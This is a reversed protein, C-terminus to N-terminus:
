IRLLKKVDEPRDISVPQSKTVFLKMRGGNELIRLQELSEAKELPSRKWSAFQQLSDATYAYLGLHHLYKFQSHLQESKANQLYPIMSRSFWLAYGDSSAVTKITSPDRLDNDTKIQCAATAFRISSDEVMGAVMRDILKPPLGITDAQINFILGDASLKRAVEATRDSGTKHHGATKVVEAGFSRAAQAIRESDTAIVLRDISKAQAAASYVYSLLPKGNLPYLVKAAFRKSGLRAPIVGIVQV